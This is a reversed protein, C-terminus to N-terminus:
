VAALRAKLIEGWEGTYVILCFLVVLFPLPLADATSAKPFFLVFTFFLLASVLVFLFYPRRKAFTEVSLLAM